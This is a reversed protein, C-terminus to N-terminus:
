GVSPPKDVAFKDVARKNLCDGAWEVAWLADGLETVTVVILHGAAWPPDPVLRRFDDNVVSRNHEIVNRVANMLVLRRRVDEREAAPEPGTSPVLPLNIREYAKELGAFGIRTLEAKRKEIVLRRIEAPGRAELAEQHTLTQGSYLVEKKRTAIEEFLDVLYTEFVRSVERYVLGLAQSIFGGPGSNILDIENGTLHVAMQVTTTTSRGGAMVLAFPGGAQHKAQEAKDLFARLVATNNAALIYALAKANALATRFERHAANTGLYSVTLGPFQENMSDGQAVDDASPPAPLREDM